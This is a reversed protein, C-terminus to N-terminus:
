FMGVWWTNSLPHINQSVTKIVNILLPVIGADIVKQIQEITGAAINSITWAAEKVINPKPSSLLRALYPLVNAKVVVQTQFTSCLM